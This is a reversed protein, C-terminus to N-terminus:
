RESRYRPITFSFTTGKGKTSTVMVEGGHSEVLKKVIALGLGAGGTARNRSPDVRYFREFVFPLHEADIGDGTDNVHVHVFNPTSRATIMVNGNPKTHTIANHVLNRVVQSLRREDALILPLHAPLESQLTISKQQASPQLAGLTQTVIQGLEIPQKEYYLQGAEALALEQLDKVLRNLMLAEEYLLDITEPTPELVRDQVAELYGRINTLPTRLEHAIDSVMNQRLEENRSLTAALANFADALEGIEGQAGVKVRQTLDGTEMLRAAHTLKAVPQLIRRSLTVTLAIAALGATISALLLTWNVTEMFNNQAPLLELDSVPDVYFTAVEEGNQFVTASGDPAVEFRTTDAENQASNVQELMGVTGLARFRYNGDVASTPTNDTLYQMSIIRELNAIDEDEPESWMIVAQQLREERLERGIEVYRSFEARTTLGVSLTVTTIAVAAIALMALLIGFRLSYIM